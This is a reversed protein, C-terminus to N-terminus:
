EVRLALIPDVRAARRAPVYAALLATAALVLPIAVFTTVDTASIEYLLSELLRTVVLAALVGCALGFATLRAGQRMVLRLVDGPAAGLVLRVGMEHSRQMVSYAVIGYIGVAALALAITAFATMLWTAFRERALADSLDADLARIAFVPLNPYLGGVARRLINALGAQPASTRVVLVMADIPHEVQAYPEYVQPPAEVALGLDRVDGVVGVVERVVDPESNVLRIQHGLPNQGPFYLRAMTQNITVVRPREGRDDENLLRGQLLPIGMAAFYGPTVEYTTATPIDAIAPPSQGEILFDVRVNDYGIPLINTTGAAVVGPLAELRAIIADYVPLREESQTFPPFTIRARVALESRFGPDVELRHGLSSILLSAGILLVVALGLQAVVLVSRTRHRNPGETMGRGGDRLSGVVGARTAHWAPVLGFTLGTVCTMALAFGAVRPDLAVTDFRPLGELALAPLLGVSWSAILLGVGGGMAAILLSETLSQRIIRGAGAGLAVRVATERRRAETRALFMAAVNACAILLVLGVAALVILLAPRTDGVVTELM